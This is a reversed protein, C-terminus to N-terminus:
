SFAKFSKTAQYEASARIGNLRAMTCCYRLTRSDASRAGDEILRRNDAIRLSAASAASFPETAFKSDVCILGARPSNHLATASLRRHRVLQCYLIGFLSAIFSAQGVADGKPLWRVRGKNIMHMTEIGQLMRWASQFSGYGKALWIRKKVTRHDQEVINNLFAFVARCRDNPRLGKWHPQTPRM